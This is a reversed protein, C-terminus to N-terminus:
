CKSMLTKNLVCRTAIISLLTLVIMLPLQNYKPLISTIGNVLSSGFMQICGLVAAAAGAYAPFPLLAGATCNPFILGAGFIAVGIPILIVNVSLYGLIAFILAIITGTILFFLGLMTVKFSGLRIVIRSNTLAGLLYCGAAILSLDGYQIPTLHLIHQYIHSGTTSYVILFSYVVTSCFLFCLFLRHTIINKYNFLVSKFSFTNTCPDCSCTEPLYKLVAFWLLITLLLITAFNARWGLYHQIYGGAAPAAIPTLSWMMAIYSAAKSLEPGDFTDRLMARALVGNAGAGLGQLLRALILIEINPSFLAIVSGFIFVGIGVLLTKKRGFLDSLPGYVLQSLAFGFLFITVTFQMSDSTANLNARIFHMSPLYIDVALQAITVNALIFFLILKKKM